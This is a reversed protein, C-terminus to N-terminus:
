LIAALYNQAMVSALFGAAEEALNSSPSAADVAAARIAPSRAVVTPSASAQAAATGGAVSILFLVILVPM